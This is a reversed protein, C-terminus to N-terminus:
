DPICLGKVRKTDGRRGKFRYLIFAPAGLHEAGVKHWREPGPSQPCLAAGTRREMETRSEMSRPM